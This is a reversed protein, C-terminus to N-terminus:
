NDICKKIFENTKGALGRLHKIVVGLSIFLTIKSTGILLNITVKKLIHGGIMMFMQTTAYNIQ